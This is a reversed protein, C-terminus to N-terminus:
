FPMGTGGTGDDARNAVKWRYGTSGGPGSIGALREVRGDALLNKLAKGVKASKEDLEESLGSQNMPEEGNRELTELVARELDSEPVYNYWGTDRDYEMRVPPPPQLYRAKSTTLERYDGSKVSQFNEMLSVAGELVTSGRGASMLDDEGAGGKREHHSLIVAVGYETAMSIINDVVVAMDTASNEEGKWLQRFPEIFLIDPEIKEIGARLHDVGEDNDLKLGSYGGDGWVHVNERIMERDEDSLIDGCNYLMTGMKQHFMGASGENELIISKLPGDPQYYTAGDDSKHQSTFGDFLPRGCGWKLLRNLNLTTKGKGARGLTTAVEGRVCITPWVLSAPVEIDTDLYEGLTRVPPEFAEEPVEKAGLLEAQKMLRVRQTPEDTQALLRGFEEVIKKQAADV